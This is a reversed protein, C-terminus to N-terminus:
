FGGLNLISPDKKDASAAKPTSISAVPKPGAGEPRVKATERIEKVFRETEEPTMWQIPEATKM